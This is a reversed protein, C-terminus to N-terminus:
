KKEESTTLIVIRRGSAPVVGGRIGTLPRLEGGHECFVQVGDDWWNEHDAARLLEALTM